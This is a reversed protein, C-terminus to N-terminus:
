FSSEKNTYKKLWEGHKDLQGNLKYEIPSKSGTWKLLGEIELIGLAMRIKYDEPKGKFLRNPALDKNMLMNFVVDASVVNQNQYANAITKLITEFHEIPCHHKYPKEIRAEAVISQGSIHWKFYKSGSKREPKPTDENTPIVPYGINIIAKAEVESEGLLDSIQLFINAIDNIRIVLLYRGESLEQIGNIFPLRLLNIIYEIEKPEIDLEELKERGALSDFTFYGLRDQLAQMEQIIIRFQELLNRRLHNQSLLDEIQTSIDGKGGFLDRLEILTFPFSAHSKM